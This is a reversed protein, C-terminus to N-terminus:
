TVIKWFKWGNENQPRVGIDQHSKELKDSV